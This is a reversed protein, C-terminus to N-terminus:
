MRLTNLARIPNVCNEGGHSVLKTAVECALEGEAGHQPEVGHRIKAECFTAAAPQHSTSVDLVHHFAVWFGIEEFPSLDSIEGWFKLLLNSVVPATFTMPANIKAVGLHELSCANKECNRVM